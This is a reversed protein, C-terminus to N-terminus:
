LKLKTKNNKIKIYKLKKFVDTYTKNKIKIWDKTIILIKILKESKYKKM